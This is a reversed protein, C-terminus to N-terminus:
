QLEQERKCLTAELQAINVEEDLTNVFEDEYQKNCGITSHIVGEDLTIWNGRM